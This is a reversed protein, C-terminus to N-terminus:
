LDAFEPDAQKNSVATAAIVFDESQIMCMNWIQMFELGDKESHDRSYNLAVKTGQVAVPSRLAINRAM